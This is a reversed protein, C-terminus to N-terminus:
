THKDHYIAKSVHNQQRNVQKREANALHGDNHKRDRRVERNIGAERRELHAPQGASLTGSKVGQAIRDQQNESRSNVQAFSTIAFLGICISTLAVNKM